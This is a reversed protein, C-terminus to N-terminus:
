TSSSSGADPNTSGHSEAPPRASLSPLTVCALRTFGCDPRESTSSMCIDPGISIRDTDELCTQRDRIGPPLVLRRRAHLRAVVGADTKPKESRMRSEPNSISARSRKYERDVMGENGADREGSDDSESFTAVQRLEGVLRVGRVKRGLFGETSLVTIAMSRNVPFEAPISVTTTM